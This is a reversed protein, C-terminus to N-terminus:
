ESYGWILLLTHHNVENQFSAKRIWFCWGTQSFVYFTEIRPVHCAVHSAPGIRLCLITFNTWLSSHSLLATFSYSIDYFFLHRLLMLSTQELLYPALFDLFINIIFAFLDAFCFLKPMFTDLTDFKNESYFKNKATRIEVTSVWRDKLILTYHDFAFNINQPCNQFVHIYISLAVRPFWHISFYLNVLCAMKYPTWWMM